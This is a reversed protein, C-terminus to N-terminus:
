TMVCQCDIHHEINLKMYDDHDKEQKVFEKIYKKLDSDPSEPHVKEPKFYELNEDFRYRKCSFKESGGCNIKTSYVAYPTGNWDVMVDTCHSCTLCTGIECWSICHAVGANGVFPHMMRKKVMRRITPDFHYHGGKKCFKKIQRKNMM